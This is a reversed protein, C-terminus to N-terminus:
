AAKKRRAMGVLGLLGSSFLWVAAPVPIIGDSILTMNDFDFNANFGPFPGAKMPSGGIGDDTLPLTGSPNVGVTIVGLDTTNFTTTAVPSPGIPLMYSAKAGFLFDDSAPTACTINTDCVFNALGIVCFSDGVIL